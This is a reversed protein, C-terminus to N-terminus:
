VAAHTRALPGGLRRKAGVESVRAAAPVGLHQKIFGHEQCRREQGEDRGGGEDDLLAAM